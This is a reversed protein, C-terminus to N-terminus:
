LWGGDVVWNQATCMASDDAALWLVLRAVDEPVLRGPLCQSEDIHLEAEPTVVHRLQRETMIWGPIVCNVRVGGAGLERALARTMGEIGAKATIYGVLDVLDIHASISGLNIISGARARLMQRSVLRAAFFQHRLNVAMRDDWYEPDLDEITHRADNAANNVLVHAAGLDATLRGVARELAAVDRVDCAEFRVGEGLERALDEGREADLDVFGVRAGQAVFQRVFEAGLGSAGGTVVVTRDVLSPYMAYSSM